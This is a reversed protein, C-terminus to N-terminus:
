AGSPKTTAEGPLSAQQLQTVIRRHELGTAISLATEGRQQTMACPPAPENSAEPYRYNADSVHLYRM